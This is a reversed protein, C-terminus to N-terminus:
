DRPVTKKRPSAYARMFEVLLRVGFGTGGAPHYGRAEHLFAPGAIDIHIWPYDTFHELFKAATISGAERGGVNKLDAIPSKLSEEYEKFLPLAHVRDGSRAGADQMAQLRADQGPGENTMMPAALSGMAVVAAGTLTAVDIVLEPKYMKAYSLADALLMRGEADTNMVEVTTGSHMRVVEGPVFANEGPRNDTAPILGVVHVPLSLRAVAELAGVVAAAGAMDSKMFDMSSKTPKLSLGGTDFVVGKGVLVIPKDNVAGDPKWSAVTFTPPDISGRNVALLGGMGEEIILEKTWVDAEYGHKKASKVIARALLIPTKEDPSLNVLDRATGVSESIIRGREAGVRCMKEHERAYIVLRQLEPADDETKTKYRKFQYSGLMFGEVLAQSAYEVERVGEPLALAATEVNHDHALEAGRAALRRLREGDLGDLTGAGLLGIRRARSKEPYVVVAESEKGAFDIRARRICAGFTSELDNLRDDVRTTTVPVLLLDVDLEEIHITTVSVKMTHM